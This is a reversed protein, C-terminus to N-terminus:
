FHFYYVFMCCDLCLDCCINANKLVLRKDEIKQYSALQALTIM